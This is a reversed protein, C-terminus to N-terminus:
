VAPEALVFRGRGVKRFRAAKGKKAIERTIAASLTAEPTKGAPSSWLGQAVMREIMAKANLGDDPASALVLVAASLASVHPSKPPKGQALVAQGHAELRANNAAEKASPVEHDQVPAPKARKAKPAATNARAADKAAPPTTKAKAPRARSAAKPPSKKTSTKKAPTKKTKTTM